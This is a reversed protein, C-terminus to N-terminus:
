HKYKGKVIKDVIEQFKLHVALIKTMNIGYCYLVGVAQTVGIFSICAHLAVNFESINDRIFVIDSVALLLLIFFIYHSAFSKFFVNKINQNQASCMGLKILAFKHYTLVTFDKIEGM